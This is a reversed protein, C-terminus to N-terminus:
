RSASCSTRRFTTTSFHLFLASELSWALARTTTRLSWDIYILVGTISSGLGERVQNFKRKSAWRSLRRVRRQVLVATRGCALSRFSCLSPSEQSAADNAFNVFHAEYLKKWPFYIGWLRKKSTKRKKEATESFSKHPTPEFGLVLIQSGFVWFRFARRVKLSWFLFEKWFYGSCLSGKWQKVHLQNILLQLQVWVFAPVSWFPLSSFPFTAWLKM